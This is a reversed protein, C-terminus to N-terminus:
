KNITPLNNVAKQFSLFRTSVRKKLQEKIEYYYTSLEIRRGTKFHSIFLTYDSLKGNDLLARHLVFVHGYYKFKHLYPINKVGRDTIINFHKNKM